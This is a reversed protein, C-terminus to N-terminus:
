SRDNLWKWIAEALIARFDKLRWDTYFRLDLDYIEISDYGSSYHFYWKMAADGLRLRDRRRVRVRRVRVALVRSHSDRKLFSTRIEVYIKAKRKAESGLQLFPVSEHYLTEAGPKSKTRALRLPSSFSRRM